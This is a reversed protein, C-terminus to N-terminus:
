VRLAVGVRAGGGREHKDAARGAAHGEVREGVGRPRAGAGEVGDEAQWDARGDWNSAATFAVVAAAVKVVATGLPPQALLQERREAANQPVGVAEVGIREQRRPRRQRGDQGDAAVRRRLLQHPRSPHHIVSGGVEHVALM